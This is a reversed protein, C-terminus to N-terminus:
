RSFSCPWQLADRDTTKRGSEPLTILVQLSQILTSDLEEWLWRLSSRRMQFHNCRIVNTYTFLVQVCVVCESHASVIHSKFSYSVLVILILHFYVWEWAISSTSTNTEEDSSILSIVANFWESVLPHEATFPHRWFSLGFLQYFYWLLGCTIWVVGTWWNVDQSALLKTITLLMAETLYLGYDM